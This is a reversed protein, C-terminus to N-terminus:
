SFGGSLSLYVFDSARRPPVQPRAAAAANNSTMADATDWSRPFDIKKGSMLSFFSSRNARTDAPAATRTAPTKPM